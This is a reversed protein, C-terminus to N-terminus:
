IYKKLLSYYNAVDLIFGCCIIIGMYIAVFQFGFIKVILLESESFYFMYNSFTIITSLTILGIIMANATYYFRNKKCFLYAFIIIVIVIVKLIILSLLSSDYSHIFQVVPNLENDFGYKSLCAYTTILDGIGYFAVLLAFAIKDTLEVNLLDNMYKKFEIELIWTM